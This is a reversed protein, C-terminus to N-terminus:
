LCSKVTKKSRAEERVGESKNAHGTGNGKKSKVTKESIQTRRKPDVRQKPRSLLISYPSSSKNNHHVFPTQEILGDTASLM